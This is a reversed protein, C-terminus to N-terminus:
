LDADIEMKLKMSLKELEELAQKYSLQNQEHNM